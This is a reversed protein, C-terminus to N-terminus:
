ETDGRYICWTAAQLELPMLDVTVAAARYHEAVREYVRPNSLDENGNPYAIRYAHRDITVQQSSEPNLLNEYFARTKLGRVAATISLTAHHLGVVKNRAHPLILDLHHLRGTELYSRVAHKARSWPVQPSAIAFMAVVEAQTHGTNLMVEHIKSAERRYWWLGDSRLSDPGSDYVDLIRQQVQNM